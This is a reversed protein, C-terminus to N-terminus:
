YVHSCDMEQINVVTVTLDVHSVKNLLNFIRVYILIEQATPGVGEIM